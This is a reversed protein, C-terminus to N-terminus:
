KRCYFQQHHKVQKVGDSNRSFQSPNLKYFRPHDLFPVSVTSMDASASIGPDHFLFDHRNQKKHQKHIDKTHQKTLRNVQKNGQTKMNHPTIARAIPSGFPLVEPVTSPLTPKQHFEPPKAFAKSPRIVPRLSNLTIKGISLPSDTESGDPSDAFLFLEGDPTDDYIRTSRYMSNTTKPRVQTTNMFMSSTKDLKKKELMKHYEDERHRVKSLSAKLHRKLARPKANVIALKIAAEQEALDDM